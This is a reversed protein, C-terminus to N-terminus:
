LPMHPNTPSPPISRRLKSFMSLAALHAPLHQLSKFFSHLPSTLTATSDKPPSVYVMRWVPPSSIHYPLPLGPPQNLDSFGSHASLTSSNPQASTSSVDHSVSPSFIDSSMSIFPDTLSKSVPSLSHPSSSTERSSSSESPSLPNYREANYSSAPKEKFCTNLYSNVPDEELINALVKKSTALNKVHRRIEPSTPLLERTTPTIRSDLAQEMLNSTKISTEISSRYHLRPEESVLKPSMTVPKM